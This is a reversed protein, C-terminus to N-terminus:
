PAKAPVSAKIKETLEIGGGKRALDCIDKGRDSGMYSEMFSTCGRPDLKSLVSAAAAAAELRAEAKNGGAETKCSGAFVEMWAQNALETDDLNAPVKGDPASTRNQKLYSRAARAWAEKCDSADRAYASEASFSLFVALAAAYKM